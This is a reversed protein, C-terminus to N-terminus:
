DTVTTYEEYTIKQENFWAQWAPSIPSRSCVLYTVKKEPNNHLQAIELQEQFQSRKKCNAWNIHKCEIWLEQNNCRVILDFERKKTSHPHKKCQNFDIVADPMLQKIDVAKQIEFVQGHGNPKNCQKILIALSTQFSPSQHFLRIAQSLLPVHPHLYNYKVNYLQAIKRFTDPSPHKNTLLQALLEKTSFPKAYLLSWHLIAISFFIYKKIRKM